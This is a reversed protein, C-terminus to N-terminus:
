SAVIEVKMEMFGVMTRGAGGGQNEIGVVVMEEGDLEMGDDDDEGAAERGLM